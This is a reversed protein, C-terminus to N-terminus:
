AAVGGRSARMSGADADGDHEPDPFEALLRDLDVPDNRLEAGDETDDHKQGGRLLACRVIKGAPVLDVQWGTSVEAVLRMGRGTTSDTGYRRRSPAMSSRDRVEIGLSEAGLILHVEFATRAHLVANTALESVVLVAPWECDRADWGALTAAVFARAALVSEPVGPCSM